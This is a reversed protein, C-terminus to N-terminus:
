NLGCGGVRNTESDWRCRPKGLAEYNWIKHVFKQM